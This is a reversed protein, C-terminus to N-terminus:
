VGVEKERFIINGKRIRVVLRRSFSKTRLRVSFLISRIRVGIMFKLNDFCIYREVLPFFYPFLIGVEFITNHDPFIYNVGYRRREGERIRHFLWM